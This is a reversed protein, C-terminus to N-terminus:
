FEFSIGRWVRCSRDWWKGRKTHFCSGRNGHVPEPTIDQPPQILPLIKSIANGIALVNRDDGPRGAVDMGSVPLNEFMKALPLTLTPAGVVPTYHSQRVFADVLLMTEGGVEVTTEGIEPPPIITTPYIMVDLDNTDLYNVYTDSLSPLLSYVAWNYTDEPIVDLWVWEYLDVADPSAIMSYVDYFTLGTDEEELYATLSRLAEYLTIWGHVDPLMYDEFVPDGVLPIDVEVLEAGMLWLRLLAHDFVEAVRPDLLDRFFTEPVGIRVDSLDVLPLDPDDGTIVADLLALDRVDRGMPGPTDFSPAM